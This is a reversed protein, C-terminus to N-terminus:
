GLLEKLASKGPLLFYGGGRVTVWGRVSTLRLRVGDRPITFRKNDGLLGAGAAIPDVEGNVDAFKPQNLWTQQVFEFQRAINACLCMFVLGRAKAADAGEDSMIKELSKPYWESPAPPGYVRGRRIMRHISAIARSKEPDETLSERPNARRIHASFPCGKGHSDLSFKPGQLITPEDSVPEATPREQVMPMGNPWRGVAKSALWVLREEDGSAQERWNDWFGRVDQELQRIVLFSGNRYVSPGDFVLGTGDKQGLIVEGPPVRTVGSSKGSQPELGVRVTSIGDRFGFPERQHTPLHTAIEYVTEWAPSLQAQLRASQEQVNEVDDAYIMVALHAERDNWRWTEANNRERDGLARSRRPTGIGQAFPRDVEDTAELRTGLMEIGSASLGLNMHWTKDRNSKGFTVHNQAVARLAARAAIPDDVCKMWLIRSHGFKGYGTFVLSQVEEVDLPASSTHPTIKPTEAM